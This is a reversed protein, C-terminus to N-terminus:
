RLSIMWFRILEEKGNRFGRIKLNLIIENTSYEEEKDEVIQKIASTQHNPQHKKRNNRPNNTTSKTPTNTQVKRKKNPVEEKDNTAHPKWKRHVM